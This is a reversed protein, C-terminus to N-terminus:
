LLIPRDDRVLGGSAEDIAEILEWEIGIDPEVVAGDRRWGRQTM